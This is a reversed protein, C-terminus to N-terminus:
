GGALHELLIKLGIGLLIAGGILGASKKLAVGVSNGLLVGLLSIVFTVVGITCSSIWINEDTLAFTIGVALADISTAIAMIFLTKTCFPDKAERNACAQKAKAELEERSERITEIIMKAGIFALLAFAIWHDVNKIFGYVSKGLFYGIVPMLFQFFGFFGALRFMGTRDRKECIMGSSVAVAFADMSLAVAILMLSLYDM